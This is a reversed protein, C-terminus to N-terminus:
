GAFSVDRMRESFVIQIRQSLSSPQTWKQPLGSHPVQAESPM